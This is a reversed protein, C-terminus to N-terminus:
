RRLALSSIEGGHFVGFFRGSLSAGADGFQFVLNLGATHGLYRVRLSYEDPATWGGCSAIEAGDQSAISWNGHGVVLREVRDPGSWVITDARSGFALSVSDFGQWVKALKWEGSADAAPAFSSSVTALSAEKSLAVLPDNSPQDMAPLLEEWIANLVDGMDDASSTIAVVLEHEPHVVCYQGFAGDGRYAGHRCRWFQFGYGQNWDSDGGAGNDVQKATAEAVWGEPLLQRGEWVGDQLYLQGFKAIDETRVSLGWGGVDIGAPDQEWTAHEIGLPEFLRPTLYDLLRRGSREQVIASCMYTAMSNYLFHTGPIHPVPHNLFDIRWDNDSGGGFLRPPETEHGCSMTLLDWITMRQLNESPEEPAFQPLHDLMRDQISLLGEAQAFGVATSCFSKSLSFLIHPASASYPAWWREALVRGHRLVM